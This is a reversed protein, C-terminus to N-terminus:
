VALGQGRGRDQAELQAFIAMVKGARGDGWETAGPTRVMAAEVLYAAEPLAPAHLVASGPMVGYGVSRALALGALALKEGSSTRARRDLLRDGAAEVRGGIAAYIHRAALIGPRCDAPLASVGAEGRAYLRDAEALLRRVIAVLGPEPRPSSLFKEPDIGAEELWDLPLYLRGAAADERVDRAVNTLQMAVGLDCARALADRDRVGM